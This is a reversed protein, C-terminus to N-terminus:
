HIILTVIIEVLKFHKIKLTQYISKYVHMVARKYAIEPPSEAKQGSNWSILHLSNKRKSTLEHIKKVIYYSNAIMITKSVENIQVKFNYGEFITLMGTILPGCHPLKM